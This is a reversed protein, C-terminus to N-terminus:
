PRTVTEGSNWVAEALNEITLDTGSGEGPLIDGLAGGFAAATWVVSIRALIEMSGDPDGAVHRGWLVLLGTATLLSVTLVGVLRRPIFGFIPKTVHVQRIDAWYILGITLGFIFAVNALLFIPVGVVTHRLFWAAIDFVGDEVLLPLSLIVGGVFTEALDHTTYMQIRKELLNSGPIRRAVRMTRRVQQLEEPEDVLGELERLQDLLHQVDPENPLDDPASRAM